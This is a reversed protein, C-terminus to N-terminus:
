DKPKASVLAKVFSLDRPVAKMDGNSDVTLEMDFDYIGPVDMIKTDYIEFPLSFKAPKRGKSPKGTPDEYPALNDAVIARITCGKVQEKSKNEFDFQSASLIIGRQKMLAM